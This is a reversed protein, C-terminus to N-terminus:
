NLKNLPIAYFRKGKLGNIQKTRSNKGTRLAGQALLSATIDALSTTPFHEGLTKSRLWLCDKHIIGDHQGEIYLKTCDAIIFCDGKYMTRIRTLYNATEPESYQKQSVREEQAQVLVTLLDLFSRHLREADQESIFGKDFCYQLLLAYSTNLFYHTEKLRDHVGLNVKRYIALWEKLLGQIQDYNEIFWRIFFYYFTSVILPNDQFYKLKEGDPPSSEIPLLRAADSGTGIVYEGTFLVGCTPPGKSIEKGRMRAPLTGDSIYRSIEILVKEQQWRIQGSDAPFLDDLVAVSDIYEKLIAVAAAISANLRVPSAIGKSRNYIQSLYSSITTKQTGTKGYLYVCLCPAKWADKYVHRMINLLMHALIIRGAGPTLSILELMGAVAEAESLNPDIDLSYPMPKLLITPRHRVGSSPRILGRGTCFVIEGNINHVGVRDIQYQREKPADPLATRIADTLYRQVRAPAFKPNFRCRIDKDLWRLEDLQALPITFEKSPQNDGFDLSLRVHPIPEAETTTYVNVVAAVRPYFNYIPCDKDDYIMKVM